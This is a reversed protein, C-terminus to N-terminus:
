HPPCELLVWGRGELLLRDSATLTDSRLALCLLHSPRSMAVYHLRLGRQILVGQKAGGSSIGLLWPKLTSLYHHRYYSELVLTSTHTEGKVSHISGLRVSVQPENAPYQYMNSSASISVEAVKGAAVVWSLFAKAEPTAINAGRLKGAVAEIAKALKNNWLEPTTSGAKRVFFDLLRKYNFSATEDPAISLVVQHPNKVRKTTGEYGERRLLELMALAVANVLPATRRLRSSERWGAMVYQSFLEPVPERHVIDPNYAPVYHGMWRPIKDDEGEKHVGAVATFEGSRLENSSFVELLYECYRPLVSRVSADDFLFIAPPRPDNPGLGVLGQPTVAFPDALGAIVTGFRFSNPLDVRVIKPGPFRDTEAGNAVGSSQYIAQNSDGFRQRVSPNDGDMFVRSLLCSQEEDNDQVEDMFVLPFRHRMDRALDPREAVVKRAWVFLEDYCFYGEESSSKCIEQILKFTETHTKWRSRMKEGSFDEEDYRLFSRGDGNNQQNLYLKTKYAAKKWRHEIAVESNIVTIPNGKSRLYPLALFENAFGHITGVFHPYGMLMAGEACSSLGRVIEDRAANTHSLVCMGSRLSPWRRALIALKAVLLTSKGSGPCAEVDITDMRQIVTMRPDKGDAGSFATPPLGM